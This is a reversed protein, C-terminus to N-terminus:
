SPAGCSLLSAVSNIKGSLSRVAKISATNHRLMDTILRDLEQLKEEPIEVLIQKGQFSIKVGTWAVTTGLQAKEYSLEVGLVGFFAVTKASIRRRAAQSGQIALVPDDVYVNLRASQANKTVFLSQLLRSLIAMIAAWSLPAGRSGQATRLFVLYKGRYRIVFFRRESKRLPVLWFADSVDTILLELGHTDPDFDDNDMLAIASRVTQTILPLNSKHTHVAARSIGSQKSDVIIRTKIKKEGSPTVREKRVAGVKTLVTNDGLFQKVADLSNFAQLYGKRRYSKIIEFVAEDEEVGYYNTFLEFDTTLEDVDLEPDEPPVKPFLGDLDSFDAALGAPAGNFFWEAVKFAPNSAQRLWAHLLHARIATNHDANKLKSTWPHELWGHETKARTLYNKCSRYRRERMLLVIPKLREPLLPFPPRADVEM